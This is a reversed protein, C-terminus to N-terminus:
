TGSFWLRQLDCELPKHLPPLDRLFTSTVRRAVTVEDTVHEM